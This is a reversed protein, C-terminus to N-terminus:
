PLRTFGIHKGNLELIWGHKELPRLLYNLPTEFIVRALFQAIM